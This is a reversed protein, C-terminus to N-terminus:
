RPPRKSRLWASATAWSMAAWLSPALRRGHALWLWLLLILPALYQLTVAVGIQLREIAIFYAAYVVALGGVGVLVMMPVQSRDILLLRPRYLAVAAAIVLLSGITRLESLRLASPGDDLLTRSVSANLGWLAAAAVM